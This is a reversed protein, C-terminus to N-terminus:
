VFLILSGSKFKNTTASRVAQPYLLIDSTESVESMKETDPSVADTPFLFVANSPSIPFNTQNKSYMILKLDKKYQNTNAIKYM